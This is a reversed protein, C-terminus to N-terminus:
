CPFLQGLPSLPLACRSVSFYDFAWQNSYKAETLENWQPRESNKLSSFAKFPHASASPKAPEMPEASSM